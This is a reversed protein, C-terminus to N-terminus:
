VGHLEIFETPWSAEMPSRSIGCYKPVGSPQAFEEGLLSLYGLEAFRLSLGSVM